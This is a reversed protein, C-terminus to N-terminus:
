GMLEMGISVVEKFFPAAIAIIEIRGVFVVVSSITAEGLDRCVDSVIGSLYGIGIVKLIASVSLSINHEIGVNLFLEKVSSLYGEALSLIGVFCILAFIPVGKWGFDRLLFASLSAVLALACVKLIM